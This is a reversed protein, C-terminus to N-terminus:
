RASERLSDDPLPLGLEVSAAAVHAALRERLQDTAAQLRLRGPLAPDPTLAFPTGFAVVLRSRLRPMSGTSRGTSRTGLCAVPVVRAGSQLALWTAGQNVQQVDGRGRTGEPFVGVAGGRTLVGKAVTLARRDGRDRDIAIQGSRTMVWGVFGHFMQQKVLFNTPRPAMSYVLPGDLLGSHNAVLVVPGTRPVRERGHVECRYLSRFLGIGVYRGITARRVPPPQPVEDAGSM